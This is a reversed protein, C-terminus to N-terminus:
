RRRRARPVPRRRVREEALLEQRVELFVVEQHVPDLLRARRELRHVADRHAGAALQARNGAHAVEARVDAAGLDGVLDDPTFKVSSQILRSGIPPSRRSPPALQLRDDVAIRAQLPIQQGVQALPDLFHQGAGARRDDHADEPGIEVDQLPLRGFDPLRDAADIARGVHLHLRQREHRLDLDGHSRLRRLLEADRRGGDAVGDRRHQAAGLDALHEVLLLDEVDHDPARGRTRASM